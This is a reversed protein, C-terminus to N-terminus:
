IHIHICIYVVQALEFEEFAELSSVSVSFSPQAVWNGEGDNVKWCDIPCQELEVAPYITAKAWGRVKGRDETCKVLWRRDVYEICEEADGVKRYVSANNVLERTPEYWGNIWAAHM